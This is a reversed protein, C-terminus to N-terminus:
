LFLLLQTNKHAQFADQYARYRTSILISIIRQGEEILIQFLFDPCHSHASAFKVSKLTPSLKNAYDVLVFLRNISHGSLMNRVNTLWFRKSSSIRPNNQRKYQKTKVLEGAFVLSIGTSQVSRWTSSANNPSSYRQTCIPSNADLFKMICSVVTAGENFLFAVSNISEVNSLINCFKLHAKLDRNCNKFDVHVLHVVNPNEPSQGCTGGVLYAFSCFVM